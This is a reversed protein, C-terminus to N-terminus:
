LSYKVKIVTDYFSVRALGPVSVAFIVNRDTNNKIIDMKGHKCDGFESEVWITGHDAKCKINGDGRRFKRYTSELSSVCVCM